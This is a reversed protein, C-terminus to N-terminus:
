AVVQPPFGSREVLWALVLAAAWARSDEPSTDISEAALDVSVPVGEGRSWAGLVDPIGAPLPHVHARGALAAVHETWTGTDSPQLAADIALARGAVDLRHLVAAWSTAEAGAAIRARGEEGAGDLISGVADVVFPSEPGSALAGEPDSM